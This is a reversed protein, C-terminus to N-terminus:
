CTTQRGTPRLTAISPDRVGNTEFSDRAIWGTYRMQPSAEYIVNLWRYGDAETELSDPILLVEINNPVRFVQTATTSPASRLSLKNDNRAGSYTLYVQCRMGLVPVSTVPVATAVVNPLPVSMLTVNFAQPTSTANPIQSPTSSPARTPAAVPNSQTLNCAACILAIVGLLWYQRM